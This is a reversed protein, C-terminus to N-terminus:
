QLESCKRKWEEVEKELIEVKKELQQQMQEHLTQLEAFKSQEVQIDRKQELIQNFQTQITSNQVNNKDILVRIQKEYEEIQMELEKIKNKYGQESELSMNNFNKRM